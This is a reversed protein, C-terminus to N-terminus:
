NGAESIKRALKLLQSSFEIGCQKARVNNIEFRLRGQVMVFTVAPGADAVEPSDGVTLAGRATLVQLLQAARRSESSAIFAVHVLKLSKPNSTRVIDLTRGRVTRDHVAEDLASGFPDDGIVAIM